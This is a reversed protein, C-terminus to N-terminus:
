KAEDASVGADTRFTSPDRLTVIILTMNDSGTGNTLKPDQCICHEFAAAVIESLSMGAQLRERVFDV